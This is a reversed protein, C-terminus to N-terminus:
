NGHFCLEFLKLLPKEKRIFYTSKRIEKYKRHGRPLLARVTDPQKSYQGGSYETKRSQPVLNYVAKFGLTRDFNMDQSKSVGIHKRQM